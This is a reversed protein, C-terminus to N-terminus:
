VLQDDAQRENPALTEEFSVFAVEVHAVGPLNAIWDHWHRSDQADAEVVLPIRHGNPEGLTLAPISRLAAIVETHKEPANSLTVV